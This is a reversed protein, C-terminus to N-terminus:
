GSCRSGPQSDFLFLKVSLDCRHDLFRRRSFWAIRNVLLHGAIAHPHSLVRSSQRGNVNRADDIMDIADYLEDPDIM